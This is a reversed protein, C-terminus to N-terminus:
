RLDFFAEMVARAVPAAVAGGTADASTNPLVVAIAIRRDGQRAFGGFWVTPDQGPVQATGTKGGVEVDPIAARTGTGNTVAQVMMDRLLTATNPSIAQADFRGDAWPGQNPGRVVRGSQDLVEGVVYPRVLAGDNEIAAVMLALHMPTVRVDRQGIASQATAPPDLDKPIRSDVVPLVYPVTRNFGFSEATQIVVEAGLDVGLKAFVTNCSVRLADALTITDGGPCPGPSFNEIPNSTQPPTYAARNEFATSPDLGRELAAAAVILKFVSGPPFTERTVRDLLPRTPDDGLERWAENIAVGDHSSLRNPDFSPNSYSALVRGTGPDLAVIAGTRNGLALRATQQLRPDITLQVTSGARGRGSVLEALNQAIVDPPLGTLDDNVAQELGSRRLIFSYWGTLHAYLEPQEYVRLYRLEDDTLVSHVIESGDVVIPGREIEYEAIISRRNAQNDAYSNARLVQIVNLQLLLAGFLVLLVIGLRQVQRTM